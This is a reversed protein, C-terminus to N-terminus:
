VEDEITIIKGGVRLEIRCPSPQPPTPKAAAQPLRLIEPAAVRKKPQINVVSSSM